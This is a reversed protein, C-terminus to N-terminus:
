QRRKPRRRKHLWDRAYLKRQTLYNTNERKRIPDQSLCCMAVYPCVFGSNWLYLSQHCTSLGPDLLQSGPLNSDELLKVSLVPIIGSVQCSQQLSKYLAGMVSMTNLLHYKTNVIQMHKFIYLSYLLIISYIRMFTKFCMKFYVKNKLLKLNESITCNSCNNCLYYFSNWKIGHGTKGIISM